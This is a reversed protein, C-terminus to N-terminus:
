SARRKQDFESLSVVNESTMLEEQIGLSNQKDTLLQKWIAYSERDMSNIDIKKLLEVEKFSREQLSKYLYEYTLSLEKFDEAEDLYFDDVNLKGASVQFM